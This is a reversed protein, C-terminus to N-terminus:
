SWNSGTPPSTRSIPPTTGPTFANDRGGNRAVIRSFEGPKLEDTAKFMLHELFHAIGSKGTVEDAAGVKYWVMHTIVPVRQNTVVVVQMGNGLTFTEPFFVGKRLSERKRRPPHNGQNSHNRRRRM